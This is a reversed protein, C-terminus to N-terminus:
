NRSTVINSKIEYLLKNFMLDPNLNFDVDRFTDELKTIIKFVDAKFSKGFKKINFSLDKFIFNDEESCYYSNIDRFWIILILLALKIINKNKAATIKTIERNLELYRRALLNRLANIVSDRLKLFNDIDLEQFIGLSGQALQSYLEAEIDTIEPNIKKLYDIINKKSLPDFKIKQCRGIITPVLSYLRSTTLIIVTNPPPEELIKLLSNSAEPKMMDCNSIIFVKKRKSEVTLFAEKILQRISDIRINNAKPINIKYYLDKSKKELEAYYLEYDSVSLSNLVNDNDNESKSVPLATIYKVYRSQFKQIDKCTRCVDCAGYEDDLHDCNLIKAFEIASADKGVGKKGHFIYAHHFRENVHINKIFNKVKEQGIINNLM